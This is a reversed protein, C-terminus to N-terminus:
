IQTTKSLKRKHQKEVKEQKGQIEIGESMEIKGRRKEPFRGQKTQGCVSAVLGGKKKPSTGQNEGGGRKKKVRLGGWGGGGMEL